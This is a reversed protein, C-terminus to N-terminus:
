GEFDLKPLNFKTGTLDILLGFTLVPVAIVKVIKISEGVNKDRWCGQRL